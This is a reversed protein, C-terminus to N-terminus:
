AVPTANAALRADIVAHHRRYYALAARVAGELVEYDSAVRDIEGGVAFSYGVIAWVPVGFGILRAEDIGPRRPHQEIYRAILADDRAHSTTQSAM